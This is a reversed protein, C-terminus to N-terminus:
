DAETYGELRIPITSKYLIGCDMTITLYVLSRILQRYQTPECEETGSDINLELNWDLPNAVYKCEMMGFKYLLNLIYHQQSIMIGTPTRIVEIGLFCHFEKMDTMEFKTSFLSKVKNIDVLHGDGIVLDDM